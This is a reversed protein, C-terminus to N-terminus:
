MIPHNPVAVEILEALKAINSPNPVWGLITHDVVTFNHRELEPVIKCMNSGGLMHVTKKSRTSELEAPEDSFIEDTNAYTAFTCKQKNILACLLEKSAMCDMGITTTHSSNTKFKFNRLPSNPAIYAPKTVTYQESYGLDLGDEYTKSLISILTDRVSTIGM